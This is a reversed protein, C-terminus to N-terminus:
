LLSLGERLFPNSEWPNSVAQGAQLSGEISQAGPSSPLLAVVGGRM